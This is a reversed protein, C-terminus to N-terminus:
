LFMLVWRVRVSSLYMHSKASSFSNCAEAVVSALKVGMRGFAGKVVHPDAAQEANISTLSGAQRGAARTM